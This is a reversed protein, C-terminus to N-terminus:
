AEPPIFNATLPAIAVRSGPTSLLTAARTVVLPASLGEVSLRTVTQDRIEKNSFSTPLFFPLSKIEILLYCYPPGDNKM